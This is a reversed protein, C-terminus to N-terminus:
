LTNTMIFSKSILTCFSLPHMVPFYQLMKYVPSSCGECKIKEFSRPFQRWLHQPVVKYLSPSPLPFFSSLTHLSFPSSFPPLPPPLSNYANWKCCRIVLCLYYYTLHWVHWWQMAGLILSLFVWEGLALCLLLWQQTLVLNM